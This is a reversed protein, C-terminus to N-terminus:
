KINEFRKSNDLENINSKNICFVKHDSEENYMNNYIIYFLINVFKLM